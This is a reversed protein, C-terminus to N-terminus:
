GRAPCLVAPCVRSRHSDSRAALATRAPALQIHAEPGVLAKDPQGTIQFRPTKDSRAANSADPHDPLSNGMDGTQANGIDGTQANGMDRTQANGMDGTQAGGPIPGSTPWIFRPAAASWHKTLRAAESPSSRGPACARRSM